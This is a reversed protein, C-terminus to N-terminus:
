TNYISNQDLMQQIDIKDGPQATLHLSHSEGFCSCVVEENTNACFYVFGASKPVIGPYRCIVSSAIMSHEIHEPFLVPFFGESPSEFIIYKM